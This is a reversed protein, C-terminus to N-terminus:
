SRHGPRFLGQLDIYRAVGPPVLQSIDQGAAVRQRIATASVPQPPMPIQAFGFALVDAPVAAPVEASSAVGDAGPRVAVALKVAALLERWRHWSPLNAHQDQGILLWWETGPERQRLALVTDISYSPGARQLELPEIAMRAEGALALELMALRHAAASPARAKQWPVGTPLWRLEDLALADRAARALALHGHHPPDFSGGFLGVRRDVPRQTDTANL